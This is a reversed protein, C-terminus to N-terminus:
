CAAGGECIEVCYKTQLQKYDTINRVDKDREEFEKRMSYEDKKPCQNNGVM